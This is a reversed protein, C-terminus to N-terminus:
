IVMGVLAGGLILWIPEVKFWLLLGLSLVALIAQAPGTIASRGIFVTSVLLMGTVAPMVGSLFGRVLVNSSVRRYVHILGWLM